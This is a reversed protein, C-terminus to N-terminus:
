FPSYADRRLPGHFSARRGGTPSEDPRQVTSQESGSATSLGGTGHEDTNACVAESGARLVRYLNAASIRIAICDEAARVSASRPCHDIVAMEGFCDGARLCQILHDEGHWSKLVTAEGTELVFLLDGQDDERFFYADAAVSVVPCFTLLFELVDTSIGGFIPMRQLLQVRAEVM